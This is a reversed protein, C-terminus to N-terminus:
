PRKKQSIPTEAGWVALIERGAPATELPRNPPVSPGLGFDAVRATVMMGTLGVPPTAAGPGYAVAESACGMSRWGRRAASHAAEELLHEM